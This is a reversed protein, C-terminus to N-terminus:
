NPFIPYVMFILSAALRNMATNTTTRMLLPLLPSNGAPATALYSSKKHILISNKHEFTLTVSHVPSTMMKTQTPIRPTYGTISQRLLLAMSCSFHDTRLPSSDIAKIEAVGDVAAFIFSLPHRRALAINRDTFISHKPLTKQIATLSHDSSPPTIQQRKLPQHAFLLSLVSGLPLLFLSSLFLKKTFSANKDKTYYTPAHTDHDKRPYNICLYNAIQSSGLRCSSFSIQQHNKSRTLGM